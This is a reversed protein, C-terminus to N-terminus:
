RVDRFPHKFSGGRLGLGRLVATELRTEARKWENRGASKGVPWQGGAILGHGGAGGHGRLASRLVDAPSPNPEVSRLSAYLRGKYRGTCLAWRMGRYTRLFDAVLSVSDPNFVDGLHSVIAAGRVKARQMAKAMTVFFERSRDPHQIRSLAQFDCRPLLELYLRILDHTRGRSFNLTDTLIGYVLATAVRTPIDTGAALLARALIASTAGCNTDIVSLEANNKRDSSHQDIVLTAKQGPPFSNNQFSPQTDVLAVHAHRAFDRRRLKKLPIKLIRIMERNEMRGVIGGYMIRGTM